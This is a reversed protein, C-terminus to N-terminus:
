GCANVVSFLFGEAIEDYSTAHFLFGREQWAQFFFLFFLLFLVILVFLFVWTEPLLQLSWRACGDTQGAFETSSILNRTVFLLLYTTFLSSEIIDFM